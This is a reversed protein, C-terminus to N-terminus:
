ARARYEEMEHETVFTSAHRAKEQLAGKGRVPVWEGDGNELWIGKRKIADVMARATRSSSCSQCLSIATASEEKVAELSKIEGKMGKLGNRIRSSPVRRVNRCEPCTVDHWTVLIDIASMLEPADLEDALPKLSRYYTEQIHGNIWRQVTGATPGGAPHAKACAEALTVNNRKLTEVLLQSFKNDNQELREISRIGSTHYFCYSSHKLGHSDANGPEYVRVNKCGQWRRPLQTALKPSRPNQPLVKTGGCMEPCDCPDGERGDREVTARLEEIDEIASGLGAAIRRAMDVRIVGGAEVSAVTHPGVGAEKALRYKSWGMAERAMTVTKVIHCWGWGM